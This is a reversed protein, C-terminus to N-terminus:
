LELASKSSGFLRNPSANQMSWYIYTGSVVLAVIVVLAKSVSTVRFDGLLVTGVAPDILGLITAAIGPSEGSKL